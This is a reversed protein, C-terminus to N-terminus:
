TLELSKGQGTAVLKSDPLTTTGVMPVHQFYTGNEGGPNVGFGALTAAIYEEALQGGRTGVGRGELLDSALFRVHAAIRPAQIEPASQGLCASVACITFAFRRLSM